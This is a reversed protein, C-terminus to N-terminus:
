FNVRMALQFQRNTGAGVQNSVTSTLAGFNGGAAGATYPQGPQLGGTGTSTNADNLRALGGSAAAYNPIQFVAHNLLNYCEARFEVNRTEQFRFKKSLTLDWQYMGPGRVANRALNGYTGPQPVAFAAPNLWPVAGSGTVGHLYPDVGPVLDPRRRNRSAGGGPVNIIPVTQIVAGPMGCNGGSCVPASSIAGTTTNRYVIDPRTILVDIPLGSRTNFVTGVQWDGLIAKAIPSGGAGFKKGAGYPIQYLANFNFAHRVDSVNDGRESLFTYNNSSTQSDKSGDSNGISHSWMYQGGLTFGQAFRRNLMVQFGNYNDTGGSTKVDIEAFRNTVATGNPVNAGCAGGNCQSFERIVVGAGSTPNMIVQTIKNTISRVFLNRGQSGVYGVTLVARGPLEQQVSASYQLIQEPIRYDPLFARPQFQLNPDNINFGALIAQQNAPFSLLPNGVDSITRIPRDNQAPQTQGEGLGPGFYYGGGIRFVTKSLKSPSWTFGLRPGFNKRMTYWDGTFNPKLTGTPVDFWLVRNNDEHM